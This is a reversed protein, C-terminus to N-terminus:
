QVTMAAGEEEKERVMRHAWLRLLCTRKPRTNTAELGIGPTSVSALHLCVGVEARM